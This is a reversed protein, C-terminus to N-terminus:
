FWNHYWAYLLEVGLTFVIGICSGFFLNINCGEKFEEPSYLRVPNEFEFKREM